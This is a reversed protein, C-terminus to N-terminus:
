DSYIRIKSDSLFDEQQYYLSTQYQSDPITNFITSCVVKRYTESVPASDLASCARAPPARISGITAPDIMGARSLLGVVYNARNPFLRITCSKYSMRRSTKAGVYRFCPEPHIQVGVPAMPAPNPPLSLRIGTPTGKPTRRAVADATVGAVSLPTSIQLCLLKYLM